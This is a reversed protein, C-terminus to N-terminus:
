GNTSEARVLVAEGDLSEAATATDPDLMIGAVGGEERADPVVEDDLAVVSGSVGM